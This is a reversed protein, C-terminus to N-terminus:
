SSTDTLKLRLFRPLGQWPLLNWLLDKFTPSPAPCFCQLYFLCCLSIYLFSFPSQTQPCFLKFHHCHLLLSAGNASPQPSHIKNQRCLPCLLPLFSYPFLLPASHLIWSHLYQTQRQVSGPLSYTDLFPKNISHCMYFLKSFILHIHPKEM